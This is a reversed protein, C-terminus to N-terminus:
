YKAFVVKGYSRTSSYGNFEYSSPQKGADAILQAITDSPTVKGNRDTDGCKGSQICRAAVAAVHPTAMSTGSITNYTGGKWTSKICKGPAAILHKDDASGPKTYNSSDYNTDDV